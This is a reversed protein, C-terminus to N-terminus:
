TSLWTDLIESVVEELTFKGDNAIQQLQDWHGSSLSIKLEKTETEQLLSLQKEERDM